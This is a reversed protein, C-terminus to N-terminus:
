PRGGAPIRFRWFSFGYRAAQADQIPSAVALEGDTLLAVPVYEGAPSRARALSDPLASPAWSDATLPSSCAVRPRSGAGGVRVACAHFRLQEGAGSFWSAALDGAGRAVLYPFYALDDGGAEAIVWSAWSAGQDRSRALWVRSAETWLLYLDGAADWAVPEVWRPTTGEVPAWTRRGPVARDRWTAGGDTSVAVLDAHESYMRGSASLPVVRVALEGRPGAALHSSGGEPHVRQPRSWSAGRDRSLAHQVGAGDNWIVHATGNPEVAVWPRDDLRQKSLMTWRWTSGADGSVGVAVHTGEGAKRDYGMTVLYLTGDRAVALDVDSNGVAGDRETGVNVSTWHAGRDTSKWLRPVTQPEGTSEAHVAGAYGTIFLTGDPLEALMPERAPYGVQEVHLTVALQAGAGEGEGAAAGSTALALVLAPVFLDTRRM